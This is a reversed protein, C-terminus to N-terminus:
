ALQAGPTGPVAQLQVHAQGLGPVAATLTIPGTQGAQSRIWVAGLGGYAGFAYPNDGILTAPGTLTLTATGAPHRRTNGYADVARFVARTADSGDAVIAPDDVDMALADHAPNSSMRLETVQQGGVYGEILLDPLGGPSRDPLSVLFPPYPLDRYLPSATAPLGTAVHTGGIYIELRECNSAIMATPAPPPVIGPPEWFFVPVIVPRVAPSLQSQYLGAGPKPVRFGDAVGAWKVSEPDQGDPSAYDFAAWGLLGSYSVQSRALSQAQGHLAGQNVLVAAPDTWAFHHPNAEAVGVAETILYPLGPLAPRLIADGTAWDHAYDNFAFVDESWGSVSHYAMAGSSPRSGDLEHAAQRTAAWLGPLDATENLRTGWIIVSPRSRDRTVMDRVNQVVLDQWVPSSSVNHWGPAEEWVMLGLEDCADLFHRSQPYHSCRVMNCNFENKLIEADKYQVRAPMAMGAYPFLQHRNLGFIQRREGNLYFGDPRFSAARFGIRRELAHSGVGPVNLTARVTYLKPNEPSWLEVPGLGSLSVKVTAVGTSTLGLATLQSAIQRSGDLLETLLTGTADGPIASDITAQIDVRPQGSLVDAPLAFLDSLFARPLVRLTVDRYIGGPQFFDISTEPRGSSLPPVPLATADVLVSLVNDGSNLRGTLEASFPLYGGQHTAITQNNIVVTANVMVGDFEVIVRNGPRGSGLLPGGTFHRRYIWVHQWDDANWNRWSLPTVTHPLTVAAFSSDDYSLAQSGAQYQGGFLWNSNLSFSLDTPLPRSSPAEQGVLSLVEAAGAGAGAALAAQIVRRRSVRRSSPTREEGPVSAPAQAPDAQAPDAQAPEAQAPEAQALAATVDQDPGDSGSGDGTDPRSYAAGPIRRPLGAVRGAPGAQGAGDAGNVMEELEPMEEPEATDADSGIEGAAGPSTPELGAVDASGSKDRWGTGRDTEDESAAAAGRASGSGAMDPIPDSEALADSSDTQIEDIPSGADADAVRSM